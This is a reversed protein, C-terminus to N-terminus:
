GSLGYSASRFFVAECRRVNVMTMTSILDRGMGGLKERLAARHRWGREVAAEACSTM